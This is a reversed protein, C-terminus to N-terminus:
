PIEQVHDVQAFADGIIQFATWTRTSMGAERASRKAANMAKVVTSGQALNAYFWAVLRVTENEPIPWLTGVACQAGAFLFARAISILGEGSSAPGLSTSCAALFVLEARLRLAAVDEVHVREPGGLGDCLLIYPPEGARAVAHAAIHIHTTEPMAALARAKTAQTFQLVQIEPFAQKIVVAQQEAGPLDPMADGAAPRAVVLPRSPQATVRGRRRMSRIVHISPSTVIPAVTGLARGGGGCPLADFPAAWLPGDPLVHIARAGRPDVGQLLLTSLRELNATEPGARSPTALLDFTAAQVLERLETEPVDVRRAQLRGGLGHMVFLANPGTFFSLLYLDPATEAPLGDPHFRKAGTPRSLPTLTEAWYRAKSREILEFVEDLWGEHVSLFLHQEILQRYVEFLGEHEAELRGIGPRIEDYLDIGRRLAARTRRYDKQAFRAMALHRLVWLIKISAPSVDLYLTLAKKLHLAARDSRGSFQHLVGLNYNTLALQEIAGCGELLAASEHLFRLASPEDGAHLHAMGVNCAAIGAMRELGDAVAKEYARTFSAIAAQSDGDYEAAWGLANDFTISTSDAAAPSAAPTFDPRARDRQGRDYHLEALNLRAQAADDRGEEGLANAVEIAAQYDSDAGVLDGLAEKATARQRLCRATALHPQRLRLSIVVGEDSYRVADAFQSLEYAAAGAAVLVATRFQASEEEDLGGPPERELLVSAARLLTDFQKREALSALSALLAFALDSTM